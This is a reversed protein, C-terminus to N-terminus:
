CPFSPLALCVPEGLSIAAAAPEFALEGLCANSFMVFAHYLLHVFATCILIGTGSRTSKTLTYIQFRPGVPVSLHKTAFFVGRFVRGNLVSSCVIPLLVGLTSGILVVFLAVIHLNVDYAGM